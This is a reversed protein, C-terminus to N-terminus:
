NRVHRCRLINHGNWICVPDPDCIPRSPSMYIRQFTLSYSPLFFVHVHESCAKILVSFSICGFPGFLRKGFKHLLDSIQQRLVSFYLTLPHLPLHTHALHSKLKEATGDQIRWFRSNVIKRSKVSILGLHNHQWLSKSIKFWCLVLYVYWAKQKTKPKKAYVDTTMDFGHDLLHRRSHHLITLYQKCDTTWSLLSILGVRCTQKM